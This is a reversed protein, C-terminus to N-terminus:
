YLTGELISIKVQISPFGEICRVKLKSSPFIGEVLIIKDNSYELKFSTTGAREREREGFVFEICVCVCVLIAKQSYKLALM